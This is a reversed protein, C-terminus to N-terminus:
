KWAALAGYAVAGYALHPVADSAWSAADWSGPDTIGLRAMTLDTALMASGGLVAPGLVPGLGLVAARLGGALVGILVGTGLGSLAGLGELRHQVEEETGPLPQGSRQALEAVVQKPTDSAPRARLVMDLYTVANLATTGAAGAAAGLMLRKLM